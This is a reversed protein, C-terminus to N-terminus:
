NWGAFTRKIAVLQKQVDEKDPADPALDLYRELDERAGKLHNMRLRLIARQRYEAASDPFADLMVDLVRAAKAYARSQFYIGRLNNLMRGVVHAKSVPALMGPDKPLAEGTVNSAMEFCDNVDLLRGGHFADIFTAFVGDDYRAVFHGPLGIGTVPRSLRRAIEMYVVSLTIPIGTRQTLVDNLCSNSPNYYDTVNGEFGLEVFLYENAASVFEPGGASTPIRESLESAHSDLLGLFSDIDLDPYEITALLLAARDLELEGDRGALLDAVERM